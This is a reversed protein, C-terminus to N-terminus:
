YTLMKKSIYDPASASSAVVGMFIVFVQHDFLLLVSAPTNNTRM